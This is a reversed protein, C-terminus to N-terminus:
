KEPCPRYYTRPQDYWEEWQTVLDMTAKNVEAPKCQAAVGSAGLLAVGAAFLTKYSLPAM